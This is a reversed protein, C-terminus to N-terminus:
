ANPRDENKDDGHFIMPWQMQFLGISVINIIEIRRLRWGATVIQSDIQAVKAVCVPHDSIHTGEKHLM